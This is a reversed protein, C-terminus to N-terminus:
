VQEAQSPARPAQAKMSLRCQVIRECCRLSIVALCAYLLLVADLVLAFLIWEFLTEKPMEGILVYLVISFVIM